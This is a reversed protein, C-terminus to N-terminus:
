KERCLGIWPDDQMQLKACMDFAASAKASQNNDLLMEGFTFLLRPRADEPLSADNLASELALLAEGSRGLKVAADAFVLESLPTFAAANV